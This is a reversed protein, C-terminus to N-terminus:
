GFMADLNQMGHVVRVIEITEDTERYLIAYAGENIRRLGAYSRFVSGMRPSHTLLEFTQVFRLGMRRAAVPSNDAINRVIDAIDQGAPETVVYRIM